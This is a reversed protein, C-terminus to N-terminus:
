VDHDEDDFMGDEEFQANIDQATAHEIPQPPKVVPSKGNNVMKARQEAEMIEKVDEPTAEDCALEDDLNANNTIIKAILIEGKTTVGFTSTNMSDWRIFLDGTSGSTVRTHVNSDDLDLKEYQINKGVLKKKEMDYIKSNAFDHINGFKLAFRIIPEDLLKGANKDAKKSVHTQIGGNFKPNEPEIVSDKMLSQVKTNIAEQLRLLVSFTKAGNADQDSARLALQAKPVQKAQAARKEPSQPGRIKLGKAEVTMFLLKQPDEASRLKMKYYCVTKQGNNKASKVDIDIADAGNYKDLSQAVQEITLKRSSM